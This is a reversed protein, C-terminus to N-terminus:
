DPQMQGKIWWKNLLRLEKENLQKFRRQMKAKRAIDAKTKPRPMNALEYRLKARENQEHVDLFHPLLLLNGEGCAKAAKRYIYDLLNDWGKPKRASQRYGREMPELMGVARKIDAIEPVYNM